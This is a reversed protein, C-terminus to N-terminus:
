TVLSVRFGGGLELALVDLGRTRTLQLVYKCVHRPADYRVGDYNPNTEMYAVQEGIELPFKSEIQHSRYKWYLRTPLCGLHHLWWVEVSELPEDM